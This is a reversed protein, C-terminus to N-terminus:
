GLFEKWFLRGHFYLSEKTFPLLDFRIVVFGWLYKDGGGEKKSKKKNKAFYDLLKLLYTTNKQKQKIPTSLLHKISVINNPKTTM